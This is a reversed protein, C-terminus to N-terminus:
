CSLFGDSDTSVEHAHMITQVETPDVRVYGGIMEQASKEDQYFNNEHSFFRLCEQEEPH